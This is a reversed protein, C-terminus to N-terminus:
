HTPRNSRRRFAWGAVAAAPFLAISGCFPLRPRSPPAAPPQTSGATPSPIATASPAPPPTASPPPAPTISASPTPAAEAPRDLGFGDEGFQRPFQVAQLHTPDTLFVFTLPGWLPDNAELRITYDGLDAWSGPASVPSDTESLTRLEASHDPRLTVELRVTDGNTLILPGSAYTGSIQAPDLVPAVTATPSLLTPTQTLWPFDFGNDNELVAEPFMNHINAAIEVVVPDNPALQLATNIERLGQYLAPSPNQGWSDWYARNVLLDAYGAHWQADKPKLELCKEYAAVSAQYLEAGGADERYGRNLLFLSKYARGLRGWAEADSPSRKVNGQETLVARWASPAVLAFEMNWVPGDRGPEFDEFHWRAENGQFVPARTTEGFGIQFDIVVNQKNAEYPLRLTIDASGITGKWGAGTELIYYFVTYPYYGTGKLSYSVQIATEKGAPFTANFEAWPLSESQYQPDPYNVRKYSVQRGDVKIVMDTIEPFESFGNNISIPFRVPISEDAAGTNRMTFDATVRASGLSQPATDNRVDILVTEAQMRVQTSEVGPQPNSGPPNAPPAIDAQVSGPMALMFVLLFVFLLIDNKKM